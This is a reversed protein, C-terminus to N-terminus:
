RYAEWMVRERSPRSTFPLLMRPTIISAASRPASSVSLTSPESSCCAISASTLTTLSLNPSSHGDERSNGGGGSDADTRNVDDIVLLDLNLVALDGRILNGRLLLAQIRREARALLFDAIEARLDRELGTFLVGPNEVGLDRDEVIRIGELLREARDLLLTARRRPAVPPDEARDRRPQVFGIALVVAIPREVDAVHPAAHERMQTPHAGVRQAVEANGGQDDGGVNWGTLHRERGSVLDEAEGGIQAPARGVRRDHRPSAPNGRHHAQLLRHSGRALPSGCQDVARPADRDEIRLRFDELLVDALLM